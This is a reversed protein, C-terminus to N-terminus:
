LILSMSVPQLRGQADTQQKVDEKPDVSTQFIALSNDSHLTALRISGTKDSFIHTGFLKSCSKVTSLKKVEDELKPTNDEKFEEGAERSFLIM